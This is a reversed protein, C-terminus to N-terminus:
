SRDKKPAGKEAREIESNWRQKRMVGKMDITIWGDMTVAAPALTKSWPEDKGDPKWNTLLAGTEPDYVFLGDKESPYVLVGSVLDLVPNAFSHKGTGATQCWRSRGDLLSVRCIRGRIDAVFLDDGVLLPESAIPAGHNYAVDPSGDKQSFCNVGGLNSEFYVEGFVFCIKDKWAIPQMWNSAPLENHWLRKGTAIEYAFAGGKNAGLNEKELGTGVFVRDGVARAASDVHGDKAQWKRELTEADLVSLGDSGSSVLVYDGSGSSAVVPKGEIHGRSAFAGLFTGARLDFKYVRANRTDHVGEGAFLHRESFAPAAAVTTGVFFSRLIEGSKLDIEHVHGSNTGIFGTEGSVIVGRFSGSEIKKTWVSELGGLTQTKIPAALSAIPQYVRESPKALKAQMSEIKWLFAPTNVWYKYAKYAGFFAVNLVLASVLVKPKLLVELLKKPGEAKLKYGFLGAVFTALASLGALVFAFPIVVTPIILPHQAVVVETM